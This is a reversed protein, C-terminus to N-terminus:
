IAEVSAEPPSPISIRRARLMLRTVVETALLSAERADASFRAAEDFVAAVLDGIRVTTQRTPKV